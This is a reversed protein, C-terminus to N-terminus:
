AGSSARRRPAHARARDGRRREPLSDLALRPVRDRPRAGVFAATVEPIASWRWRSASCRSRCGAGSSSACSAGSAPARATSTSRSWRCTARPIRQRRRRDRVPVARVGADGHLVSNEGGEEYNLVFQVAIRAGGPWDAHPCTAATASSTARITWPRRGKRQSPLGPHKGRQPAYLGRREPPGRRCVLAGIFNRKGMTMMSSSKRESFVDPRPMRASASAISFSPM